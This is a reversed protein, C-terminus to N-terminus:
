VSFLLRSYSPLPWVDESVCMEAEDVLARLQQMKAFVSERYFRATPLGNPQTQADSLLAQLSATDKYIGSTLTSLKEAIDREVEANIGLALKASAADCISKSYSICAPVIKKKIIDIMTLAEINIVKSYNELLIETRSRLETETYVRFKEFMAVNEPRLYEPLADVTSVLNPLKRVEVAEKLWEDSYGNGNFIIQKHEKITKVLLKRLDREFNESGELADAFESLEQAMITNMITNTCSISDASGLM